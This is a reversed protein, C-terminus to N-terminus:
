RLQLEAARVNASHDHEVALVEEWYPPDNGPCSIGIRVSDAQIDLVTVTLDDGIMLGENVGRTFVHM